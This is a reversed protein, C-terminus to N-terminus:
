AQELGALEVELSIGGGCISGTVQGLFLDLRGFGHPASEPVFEASAVLDNAISWCLCGKHTGALPKPAVLSHFGAPLGAFSDDFRLDALSKIGPM